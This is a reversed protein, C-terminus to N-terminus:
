VVTVDDAPLIFSSTYSRNDRNFKPTISPNVLLLPCFSASLERSFNASYHVPKLLFSHTLCKKPCRKSKKGMIFYLSENM